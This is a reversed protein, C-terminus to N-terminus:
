GPCGNRRHLVAFDIRREGITMRIGLPHARRDSGGFRPM